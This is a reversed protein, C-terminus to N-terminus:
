KHKGLWCNNGYGYVEGRLTWKANVERAEVTVEDTRKRIRTMMEFFARNDGM